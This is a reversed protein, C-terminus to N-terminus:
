SVSLEAILEQIAKDLASHIAAATQPDRPKISIEQNPTSLSRVTHTRGDLILTIEVIVPSRHAEIDAPELRGQAIMEDQCRHSIHRDRLEQILSGLLPGNRSFSPGRDRAWNNIYIGYHMVNLTKGVLRDHLATDLSAHLAAFRNPTIADDGIQRLTFDCTASDRSLWETTTEDGARQDVLDFAQADKARPAEETACAALALFLAILALARVPQWGNPRLNMLQGEEM